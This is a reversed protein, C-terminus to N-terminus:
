PSSPSPSSSPSVLPPPGLPPPPTRTREAPTPALAPLSLARAKLEAYAVRATQRALAEAEDVIESGALGFQLQSGWMTRTPARTVVVESWLTVGDRDVVLITCRDYLSVARVLEYRERALWWQHRVVVVADVDLSRALTALAETTRGHELDVAIMRDVQTWDDAPTLEPVADYKKSTMAQRPSIVHEVGYIEELFQMTDGIVVGVAEEGVRDGVVLPGPRTEVIGLDRTGYVSVLAVDQLARVRPELITPTACGGVVTIVVLAATWLAGHMRPM